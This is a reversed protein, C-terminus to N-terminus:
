PEKGHKLETIWRELRIGPGLGYIHDLSGTEFGIPNVLIIIFYLDFQTFLLLKAKAM